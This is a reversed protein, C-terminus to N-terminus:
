MFGRTCIGTKEVLRLNESEVSTHFGVLGYFNTIKGKKRWWSAEYALKKKHSIVNVRKLSEEFERLLPMAHTAFSHLYHYM